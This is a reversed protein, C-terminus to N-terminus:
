NKETSRETRTTTVDLSSRSRLTWWTKHMTNRCIRSVCFNLYLSWLVFDRVCSTQNHTTWEAFWVNWTRPCIPFVFSSMFLLEFSFPLPSDLIPFFLSIAFSTLHPFPSIFSLLIISRLRGISQCGFDRRSFSVKKVLELLDKLFGKLEENEICGNNDQFRSRLKKHIQKHTQITTEHSTVGFDLSITSFRHGPFSICVFSFLRFSLFFSLLMDSDVHSCSSRSLSFLIRRFGMELVFLLSLNIDPCLLPWPIPTNCNHLSSIHSLRSNLLVSTPISLFLVLSTTM